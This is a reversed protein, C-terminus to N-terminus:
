TMREAFDQWKRLPYRKNRYSWQVGGQGISLTGVHDAGSWIKIKLAQKTNRRGIEISQPLDAMVTSINWEEVNEWAIKAIQSRSKKPM